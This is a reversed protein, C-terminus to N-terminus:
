SARAVACAFEAEGRRGSERLLIREARGEVPVIAHRRILLRWEEIVAQVGPERGISGGAAADIEIVRFFAGPRRTILVPIKRNLSRDRGRESQRCSVDAAVALQQAAATQPDPRPLNM